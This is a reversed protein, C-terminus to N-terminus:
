FLERLSLVRTTKHGKDRPQRSRSVVEIPASRPTKKKGMIKALFLTNYEEQTPRQPVPRVICDDLDALMQAGIIKEDQAICSILSIFEDSSIRLSSYVM